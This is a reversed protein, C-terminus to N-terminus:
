SITKKTEKRPQRRRIRRALVTEVTRLRRDGNRIELALVGSCPKINVVKRDSRWNANKDKNIKQLNLPETYGLDIGTDHLYEWKVLEQNAGTIVWDRLVLLQKPKTTILNFGHFEVTYIAKQLDMIKLALHQEFNTLNTQEKDDQKEDKETVLEEESSEVIAATEIGHTIVNTEGLERIDSAFLTRKQKFFSVAKEKDEKDLNDNQLFQEIQEEVTVETEDDDKTPMEEVNTLYLVPGEAEVLEEDEYTYEGFEDRSDSGTQDKEEPVELKKTSDSSIPVEIRKGDH